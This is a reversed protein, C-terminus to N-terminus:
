ETATAIQVELGRVVDALAIGSAQIETIDQATISWGPPELPEDPETMSEAPPVSNVPEDYQTV